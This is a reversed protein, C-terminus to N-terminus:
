PTTNKFGAQPIGFPRQINEYKQNASRILYNGVQNYNTFDLVRDKEFTLGVNVHANYSNQLPLAFRQYGRQASNDIAIAKFIGTLERAIQDPNAGESIKKVALNYFDQPKTAYEPDRALPALEKYLSTNAIAPIKGISSLSPASYLGGSEPINQTQQKIWIDFNDKMKKDQVSKDLAKWTMADQGIVGARQNVLLKATTARILPTLPANLQQATQITEWPTHAGLRGAQIDPDLAILEIRQRNEPSMMKLDNYTIPRDYGLVKSAAELKVNWNKEAVIKDEREMIQLNKLEESIARSKQAETLRERTLELEQEQVQASHLSEVARLQTASTALRINGVELGTKALNFQAQATSKAAAALNEKSKAALLSDSTNSDISDNIAIQDHTAKQLKELVGMRTALAAVRTGHAQEEGPLEFQAQFWGLFDDLPNLKQKAELQIAEDQVGASESQISRSMETLITNSANPDTGFNAASEQNIKAKRLIIDQQAKLGANKADAEEQEAKTMGETATQLDSQTVGLSELVDNATDTLKQSQDFIDKLSIVSDDNSNPTPNSNSM